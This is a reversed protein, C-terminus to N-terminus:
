SGDKTCPRWMTWAPPGGGEVTLEGSVTFGLARYFGLNAPNTSELHVGVGQAVAADIGHQIVRKGLGQGQHAPAVALFNLYAHPEAPHSAGFVRVGRGVLAQRETGVLARLLGPLSPVEPYPISTVDPPRWLAVAAIVGDVDVTDVRAHLLYEEVFLGMWAATAELRTAPDLFIWELLPDTVFAEALVRRIAVADALRPHDM